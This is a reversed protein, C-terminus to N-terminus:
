FTSILLYYPNLPSVRGGTVPAPACRPLSSAEQENGWAAFGIDPIDEGACPACRCGAEWHSFCSQELLLPWPSGACSLSFGMECYYDICWQTHFIKTDLWDDRQILGTPISFLNFTVVAVCSAFDLLHFSGLVFEKAEGITCQSLGCVKSCSVEDVNWSSLSAMRNCHKCSVCVSILVIDNPGHLHNLLAQQVLMLVWCQHLHLSPTSCAQLELVWRLLTMNKVM